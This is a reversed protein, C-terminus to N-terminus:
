TRGFRRNKCSGRPTVDWFVTNKVTVAAIVEFRVDRENMIKVLVDCDWSINPSVLLLQLQRGSLFRVGEAIPLAAV